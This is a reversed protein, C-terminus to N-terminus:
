LPRWLHRRDPHRLRQRADMLWGKFRNLRSSPAPLPWPWDGRWCWKLAQRWPVNLSFCRALARDDIPQQGVTHPMVSWLDVSNKITFHLRNLRFSADTILAVWDRDLSPEFIPENVLGVNLACLWPNLMNLYHSDLPAGTVEGRSNDYVFSSLQYDFWDTQGSLAAVSEIEREVIPLLWPRPWARAAVIILLDIEETLLQNLVRARNKSWAPLRYGSPLNSERLRQHAQRDRAFIVVMPKTIDRDTQDIIAALDDPDSVDPVVIVTRPAVVDELIKYPEALLQAAHPGSWPIHKLIAAPMPRHERLWAPGDEFGLMILQPTTLHDLHLELARHMQQYRTETLPLEFTVYQGVFTSSHRELWPLLIDKYLREDPRRFIVHLNTADYASSLELAQNLQREIDPRDPAVHLGITVSASGSSALRHKRRVAPHSTQYHRDHSQQRETTKSDTWYRWLRDAIFSYRAGTALLRLHFDWDQGRKLTADWPHLPLISRRIASATDIFPGMRLSELDVLRNNFADFGYPERDGTLGRQSYVVDATGDIIPQSLRRLYDPNMVNDADFFCIIEGRAQRLGFNRAACANHWDGRWYQAGYQACIPKIDEASADDIVLCEVPLDTDQDRISALAIPLRRRHNHCPIIVSVLPKPLTM